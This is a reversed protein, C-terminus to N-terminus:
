ACEDVVQKRGRTTSHHYDESQAEAHAPKSEAMARKVSAAVSGMM